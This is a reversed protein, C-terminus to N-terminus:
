RFTVQVPVFFPQRHLQGDRLKVPSISRFATGNRDHFRPQLALQLFIPFFATGTRKWGLRRSLIKLM